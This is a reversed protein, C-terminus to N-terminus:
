GTHDEATEHVQCWEGMVEAMMHEFINGPDESQCYAVVQPNALFQDWMHRQSKTCPIAVVDRLVDGARLGKDQCLRQLLQSHTMTKASEILDKHGPQTSNTAKTLLKMKVIGVEAVDAAPVNPFCEYIVMADRLTTRSMGLSEVVHKRVFHDFSKYGISHYIEPTNKIISLRNGIVHILWDRRRELWSAARTAIYLERLITDPSQGHGVATKTAAEPSCMDALIKQDEESMPHITAPVTDTIRVPDSMSINALM